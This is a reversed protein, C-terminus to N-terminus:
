KIRKVILRDNVKNQIFKGTTKKNIRFIYEGITNKLEKSYPGADFTEGARVKCFPFKKGINTAILAHYDIIKKELFLTYDNTGERWTGGSEKFEQRLQQKDM